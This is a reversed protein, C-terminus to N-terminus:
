LKRELVQEALGFSLTMGAGGVGTVLTVNQEPRAVFYAQTPHKLYMGNWREAITCHPAELFRTLYQLVLTDIKETNFPTIAEGYEHSDGLTLEGRGNQSVLVHIGYKGYEPLEAEYRAALAPLSPCAAFSTYHRLTLGAALMPGIRWGGVMPATRMMQLKCPFLGAAQLTSPYLTQIDDGACVILEAAEFRGASTQLANGEYGMAVTDFSFTVAYTETLFAPLKAIVERPDVCIETPSWLAGRLGERKIGNAQKWVQDAEWWTAEPFGSTQLFEHIVQAEDDAYALHLSGCVDHWLGAEGLISLWHERSRLAMAQREGAPQGIPWLMGFNRVSAGQARASREVVLVRKGAKGAHYAHALGLIGAGVIAIDYHTDHTDSM